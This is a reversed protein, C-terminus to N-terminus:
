STITTGWIEVFYKRRSGLLHRASAGMNIIINNRSQKVQLHFPIQNIEGLENKKPELAESLIKEINKHKINGSFLVTEINAGYYGVPMPNYVEEVLIQGNKLKQLVTNIETAVKAIEGEIIVNGFKGTTWKILKSKIKM